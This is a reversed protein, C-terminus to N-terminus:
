HGAKHRSWTRLVHETSFVHPHGPRGAMVLFAMGKGGRRDRKGRPVEAEPAGGKKFVDVAESGRPGGGGRMCTSLLGNECWPRGQSAAAEHKGSKGENAHLYAQAPPLRSDV